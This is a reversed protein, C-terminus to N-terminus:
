VYVDGNQKLKTQEYVAVRRRYLELKACELIGILTNYTEYKEGLRKLVGLLLRTIFYNVASISLTPTQAFYSTVLGNIADRNTPIIYPM